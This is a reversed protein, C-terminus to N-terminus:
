NNNKKLEKIIEEFEDLAKATLIKGNPLMLRYPKEKGLKLKIKSYTAKLMRLIMEYTIAGAFHIIYWVYPDGVLDPDLGLSEPNTVVEIEHEVKVSSGEMAILATVDKIVSEPVLIKFKLDKADTNM